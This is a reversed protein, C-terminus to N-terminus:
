CIFWRQFKDYTERPINHCTLWVSQVTHVWESRRHREIRLIKLGRPRLMDRLHWFSSSLRLFSTPEHTASLKRFSFYCFSKSFSAVYALITHRGFSDLYDHQSKTARFVGYRLLHRGTVISRKKRRTTPFTYTTSVHGTLWAKRAALLPHKSFDFLCLKNRVVLPNAQPLKAKLGYLVLLSTQVAFFIVAQLPGVTPTIVLELVDHFLVRFFCVTQTTYKWLVFHRTKHLKRQM